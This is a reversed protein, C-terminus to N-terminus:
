KGRSWSILEVRNAVGTQKYLRELMTKVTAPAICMARAIQPNSLGREVHAVLEVQRTTLKKQAQHSAEDIAVLFAASTGRETCPSAYFLHGGARLPGEATKQVARAISNGLQPDRALLTQARRSEGLVGGSADTVVVVDARTELLRDLASSGSKANALLSCVRLPVVLELARASLRAREDDSFETGEPIAVVCFAVQVQANCICIRGQDLIGFRKLFPYATGKKFGERTAIGDRFPEVWRNRQNEPVNSVDFAPSKKYAQTPFTFPVFRGERMLRLEGLGQARSGRSTAAVSIGRPCEAYLTKAAMELVAGEDELAAIADTLKALPTGVAERGYYLQEAAM